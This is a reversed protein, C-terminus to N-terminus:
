KMWYKCVANIICSAIRRHLGMTNWGIIVQTSRSWISVFYLSNVIFFITILCDNFLFHRSVVSKKWINTEITYMVIPFPIQHLESYFRTHRDDSDCEKDTQTGLNFEFLICMFFRSQNWWFIISFEYRNLTWETAFFIRLESIKKM